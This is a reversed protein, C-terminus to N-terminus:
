SASPDVMRSVSCRREEACQAGGALDCACLQHKAFARWCILRDASPGRRLTLHSAIAGHADGVADPRCRAVTAAHTIPQTGPKGWSRRFRTATLTIEAYKRSVSCAAANIGPRRLGVLESPALAAVRARRELPEKLAGIDRPRPATPLELIDYGRARMFEDELQKQARYQWWGYDDFVIVGGPVVHDFM